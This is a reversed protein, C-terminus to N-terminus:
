LEEKVLANDIKISAAIRTILEGNKTLATALFSYTNTPVDDPVEMTQQLQDFTEWPKVPCRYGAFGVAECLDLTDNFIPTNKGKFSQLQLVAGQEITRTLKTVLDLDVEGPKMPHQSMHFSSIKLIPITDNNCTFVPAGGVLQKCVPREPGAGYVYDLIDEVGAGLVGSIFLFVALAVM